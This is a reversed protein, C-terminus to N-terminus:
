FKYLIIFLNCVQKVVPMRAQKQDAGAASGAAAEAPPATLPLILSM